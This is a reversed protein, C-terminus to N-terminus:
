EEYYGRLDPYEKTTKNRSKVQKYKKTDNDRRDYIWDLIGNEEIEKLQREYHATIAERGAKWAQNTKARIKAFRNNAESTKNSFPYLDKPAYNVQNYKKQQKNLCPKCSWIPKKTYFTDGCGKCQRTEGNVRDFKKNFM